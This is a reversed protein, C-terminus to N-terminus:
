FPAADKQNLTEATWYSDDIPKPKEPLIPTIMIISNRLSIMIKTFIDKSNLPVIAENICHCIEAPALLDPFAKSRDIFDMEKIQKLFDPVGDPYKTRVEEYLYLINNVHEELMKVSYDDLATTYGLFRSISICQQLFPSKCFTEYTHGYYRYEFTFWSIFEAKSVPYKDLIKM